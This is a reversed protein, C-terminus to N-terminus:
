NNIDLNMKTTKRLGRDCYNHDAYKDYYKPYDNYYQLEYKQKYTRRGVINRMVRVSAAKALAGAFASACCRPVVKM